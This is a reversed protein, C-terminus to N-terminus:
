IAVDIIAEGQPQESADSVFDSTLRGVQDPTHPVDISEGRMRKLVSEFGVVAVNSNNNVVVVPAVQDGLGLSKRWLEVGSKRASWHAHAMLSGITDIALEDLRAHIRAQVHSNRALTREATTLGGLSAAVANQVDVIPTPAAGERSDLWAVIESYSYGHVWLEVYSDSVSKSAALKQM